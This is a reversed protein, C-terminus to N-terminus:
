VELIYSGTWQLLRPRFCLGKALPTLSGRKERGHGSAKRLVRSGAPCPERPALWALAVGRSRSQGGCLGEM